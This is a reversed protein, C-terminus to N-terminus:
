SRSTIRDSTPARGTFTEATPMGTSVSSTSMAFARISNAFLAIAFTVADRAEVLACRM